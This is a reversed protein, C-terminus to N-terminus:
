LSISPNRYKSILFLFFGIKYLNFNTLFNKRRKRFLWFHKRPVFANKFFIKWCQVYILRQLFRKTDLCPSYLVNKRLNLENSVTYPTALLSEIHRHNVCIVLDDAYVEHWFTFNYCLSSLQELVEELYVNFLAPRIPFRKQM